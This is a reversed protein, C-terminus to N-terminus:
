YNVHKYIKFWDINLHLSHSYPVSLFQCPVSLEKWVNGVYVDSLVNDVPVRSRWQEIETLVDKKQFINKLYVKKPIFWYQKGCKVKRLLEAGCTRDRPGTKVSHVLNSSANNPIKYCASCKPCVAFM